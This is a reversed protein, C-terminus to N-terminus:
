SRRPEPKRPRSADALQVAQRVIAGAVDLGTAKEIGEFGPSSNVEMILPGRRSELLDVGAVDLGIVRVASVAADVWEPPLEIPTGEGGRHLNSRFEGARAQRRMAAVVRDGIVLARVDRGESEQIFEQLLIDNGLDWFTDLLTQVEEFTTAIMVGIGQTGQVLKVIVPLGGVRDVLARVDTRRHAMVTRPIGLGFRALMQLARLKDRSRSIPVSHNLVPVGMAEFQSVVALGYTTISAGIRPVVVDVPPLPETGYFLAPRASELALNFRLTDLVLARHGLKRAARVMRRTSYLSAKRSLICIVLPSGERRRRAPAAPKRTRAVRDRDGTFRPPSM